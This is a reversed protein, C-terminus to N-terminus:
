IRARRTAREREQATRNREKDAARLDFSRAAPM